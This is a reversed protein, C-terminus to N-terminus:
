RVLDFFQFIFCLASYLLYNLLVYIIRKFGHGYENEKLEDSILLIPGILLFFIALAFNHINIYPIILSFHILFIIFLDFLYIFKLFIFEVLCSKYQLIKESIKISHFNWCNRTFYIVEKFPKLILSDTLLEVSSFQTLNILAAVSSLSHFSYEPRQIVTILPSILTILISYGIYLGICIPIYLIIIIPSILFLYIRIRLDCEKIIFIFSYLQHISPFFWILTIIFNPILCLICIPIFYIIFDIIILILLFIIRQTLYLTSM